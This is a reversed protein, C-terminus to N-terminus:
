QDIIQRGAAGAEKAKQFDAARKEARKQRKKKIILVVAAIVAAWIVLHPLNTLFWVCVEVAGNGIQRVSGLFGESMRQWVTKEVVPTLEKVESINLHVTSYDVQNDITRLRSEMSELQYRVNTLREEITLIDELSEAKELLELLRTQETRLADRRSEMDVYALTVDDVSDSRRVVNCLTSVSDLFGTLKDRPIRLTMDAHRVSGGSYRSGNYTDMSEIYGGLERVMDELSSVAQEFERTEVELNVTRILKRDTDVLPDENAASGSDSRSGTVAEEQGFSGDTAEGIEPAYSPNYSDAAEGRNNLKSDQSFSGDSAGCGTFLVIVFLAAALIRQLKGKRKM